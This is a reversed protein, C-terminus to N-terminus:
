SMVKRLLSADRDREPALRRYLSDVDDRRHRELRELHTQDWDAKGFAPHLHETVVQSLYVRRGLANAVDNLWTDNYDSSFHPPVFYGVTDVWRRHLFGHTGFAAGWHGDDGHVFVIRDPFQEVAAAVHVDWDTSRFLLDDGAHMLIEGTAREFCGNWAQSLVIRPGTVVTTNPLDPYTAPDDDDRYLVVQVQDPDAATALASTVMREAGAPRGRSPCLISIM